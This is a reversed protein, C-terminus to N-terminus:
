KIIAVKGIQNGYESEIVWYYLGSVVAETNRTIMNWEHVGATGSGAPEDHELVRILDGDLSYISIRCKNPLNAFYIRHSRAPALDDQRNEFGDLYYGGDMRYPNPYVYVDMKGNNRGPNDQDLAFVEVMNNKISSELPDLSRGPHGFDFATVTVYYPVTPLLNDIVYEWEYYRMRGEEDVDATDDVADPYLKHIRKPDFRDSANYDVAEFYYARGEFYFPNHYNYDLPVFEEGYLVRLSDLTYPPDVVEYKKRVSNWEFRSYDQLDWSALLVAEREDRSRSLYVRYGEFDKTFTMPDITNEPDKGNWRVTIRHNDTIIRLPPRPPATAGRFDPVGDGKYFVRVSDSIDPDWFVYARGSDGDGDTDVGPNDYIMRAWRVNDIMNDFDLYNQFPGPNYRDFLNAYGNPDSHTEEGITMVVTLTEVEAPALEFPGYSTLFEVEHGIALRGASRHPPLWGEATHNVASEYGSYDVEPKSMLYYRNRDSLPLGLGGFFTRMGPEDMRPGWNYWVGRQNSWWNFNYTDVEWPVRLPAIGFAHSCRILDWNLAGAKGDKDIVYALHMPEKRTEDYDATVSDIYGEQEDPVPYPMEGNSYIIGKYYLGVWMSKITDRGLNMISYDVIVFDEAYRQSWAYSTQMVAINLPQHNRGDWTSYEVWPQDRFTDAYTCRFREDADALPSYYQSNPDNSKIDFEGMPWFDPWLEFNGADDVATTVLTDRGIVGGIWLGTYYGHYLRSYYPYYFSPASKREEPMAFGYINGVTGNNNITTWLKGARHIQGAIYPYSATAMTPIDIKSSASLPDYEDFRDGALGIIPLALAILFICPWTLKM